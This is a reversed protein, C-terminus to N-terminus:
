RECGLIIGGREAYYSCLGRAPVIRLDIDGFIERLREAIVNALELNEVHCIRVKGGKYGCARIEEIIKELVRKDGRCKAVPDITGVPSATGLIRINMIGIASAIIKNVRGNVALNHLSQLAFYLKLSKQYTVIASSVEEFSKGQAKLEAIKEILLVMGPGTSLSDVICIKVEPHESLYQEKAIGASAYTGSLGSTITVVYIEDAGEFADLWSQTSPCATYSRGHHSYLYDLVEDVDLDPEDVFSKEDTSLTLPVTEFPVDPFDKLDCSSDAIIKM